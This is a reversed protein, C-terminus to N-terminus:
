FVIVPRRMEGSSAVQNEAVGVAVGGGCNVSRESDPVFAHVMLGAKEAKVM